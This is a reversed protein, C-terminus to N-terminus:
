TPPPPPPPPPPVSSNFVDKTSIVTTGAIRDSFKQRKDGDTLIGVLWDLLILPGLVKSINRILSKVATVRQGEVTQVQLGLIRKGITAGWMLELLVFYLLLLVGEILGNIIWSGWAFYWLTNINVVMALSIIFGIIATPIAIIIADIILAIVRYIWHMWDIQQNPTSM